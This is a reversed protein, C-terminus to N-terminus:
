PLLCPHVTALVSCQQWYDFSPGASILKPVRPFTGRKSGKGMQVILIARLARWLLRDAHWSYFLHGVVLGVGAERM